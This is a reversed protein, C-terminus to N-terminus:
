NWRRWGTRDGGVLGERNEAIVGNVERVAGTSENIHDDRISGDVEAFDVIDRDAGGVPEGGMLQTVSDLLAEMRAVMGELDPIDMFGGSSTHATLVDGDALLEASADGTSIELHKEATLTIQAITAVSGTNVPVGGAVSATVRIMARNGPDPDIATVQGVKVGGFRVDAHSNLGGIDTFSATSRGPPKRRPSPM